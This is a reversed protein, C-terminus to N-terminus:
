VVNVISKFWDANTDWNSIIEPITTKVTYYLDLTKKVMEVSNKCRILWRELGQM